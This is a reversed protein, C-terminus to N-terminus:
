FSPQLIFLCEIWFVRVAMCMHEICIHIVDHADDLKKLVYLSANEHLAM